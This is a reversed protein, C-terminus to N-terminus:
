EWNMQQGCAERAERQRVWWEAAEGTFKYAALDVKDEDSCRTIRFIEEMRALWAEALEPQRGGEFSPPKHANFSKYRDERGQAQLLQTMATMAQAMQQVLPSDEQQTRQRSPRGAM